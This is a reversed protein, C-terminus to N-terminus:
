KQLRQWLRVYSWTRRYRTEGEKARVVAGPVVFRWVRTHYWLAASLADRQITGHSAPSGRIDGAHQM